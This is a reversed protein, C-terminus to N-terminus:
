HYVCGLSRAWPGLCGHLRMCDWGWVCCLCSLASVVRCSLSPATWRVLGLSFLVPPRYATRPNSSSLGAVTVTWLVTAGVGGTTNCVLETDDRTVACRAPFSTALGLPFYRLRRLVVAIFAVRVCTCM